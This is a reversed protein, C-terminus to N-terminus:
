VATYNQNELLLRRKELANSVSITMEELTFPKIIYDYAGNTLSSVAVDIDIVSTVLIFAIDPYIRKAERLLSIGGMEPMLVDALVLDFPKNALLNLATIGDQCCECEYGMSTLKRMLIERILVEDDAILIRAHYPESAAPISFAPECIKNAISMPVVTREPARKENAQRPPSDSRRNGQDPNKSRARL